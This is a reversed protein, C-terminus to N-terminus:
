YTIGTCMVRVTAPESDTTLYQIEANGHASYYYPDGMGEMEYHIDKLQKLKSVPMGVYAGDASKLKPTFVSIGCVKKDHGIFIAMTQKGNLTCIYWGAGPFEMDDPSAATYTKKNYLGTASSPINASRMGITLSGIGKATLTPQSPTQALTCISCVSLTVMFLAVLLKKM